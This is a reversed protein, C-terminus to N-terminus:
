KLLSDFDLISGERLAKDIEETRREQELERAKYPKVEGVEGMFDPPAEGALVAARAFKVFVKFVEVEDPLPTGKERTRRVAEFYFEDYIQQASLQNDM